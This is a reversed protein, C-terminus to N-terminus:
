ACRPTEMHSTSGVVTLHPTTDCGQVGDPDGIRSMVSQELIAPVDSAARQAPPPVLRLKRSAAIATARRTPSPMPRTRSSRDSASDATSMADNLWAVLRQEARQRSKRVAEYRAGDEAAWVRLRIRDLRTAGIMDAEEATIVSATVARALVLDPHGSPASRVSSSLAGSTPMPADLAERVAAHGARYAAWRLRTMIAPRDVDIETLAALFGRLIEAHVDSPDGAFRRSLQAALNILAPLALGVCGITWDDGSISRSRTVMERWVEDRTAPPCSQSLLLTRLDHLAVPHDPLQPYPCTDLSLPDPRTTLQVFATRAVGLPSLDTPRTHAPLAPTHTM